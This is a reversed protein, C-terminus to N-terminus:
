GREGMNERFIVHDFLLVKEQLAAVLTRATAPAGLIPAPAARASPWRLDLPAPVPTAALAAPPPALRPWRRARAWRARPPVPAARPCRARPPPRPEQGHARGAPERRSAAPPARSEDTREALPSAVARPPPTRGGAHARGGADRRPEAVPSRSSRPCSCPESVPSRSAARGAPERRHDSISLLPPLQAARGDSRSAPPAPRLDLPPLRSNPTKTPPQEM